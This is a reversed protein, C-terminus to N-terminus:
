GLTGLLVELCRDIRDFARDFEEPARGYPDPIVRTTIPHPDLDGLVIVVSERHLVPKVRPRHGPDMLLLIGGAPVPAILRSQHGDLSIGRARARERATPDAPRGPGILGASSLPIALTRRTFHERLVAEAYPSRCINGLCTVVIATPRPARQLLDLATRRRSPHLLRDPGHRLASFWERPTM